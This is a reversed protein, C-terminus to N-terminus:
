NVADGSPLYKDNMDARLKDVDKVLDHFSAFYCGCTPFVLPVLRTDRQTDYSHCIFM